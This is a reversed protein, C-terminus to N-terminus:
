GKANANEMQKNPLYDILGRVLGMMTKTTSRYLLHNIAPKDHVWTVSLVRPGVHNAYKRCIMKAAHDNESLRIDQIFMTLCTTSDELLIDPLDALPDSYTM